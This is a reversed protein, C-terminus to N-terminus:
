DLTLNGISPFAGGISTNPSRQLSAVIMYYFPFLFVVAGTFLAGMVAWRHWRPGPATATVVVPVPRDADLENGPGAQARPTTM